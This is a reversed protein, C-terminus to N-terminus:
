TSFNVNEFESFLVTLFSTFNRNIIVNLYNFIGVVKKDCYM